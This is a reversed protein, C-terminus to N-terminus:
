TTPPRRSPRHRHRHKGDTTVGVDVQDLFDMLAGYDLTLPCQLVAVGAFAVLGIRDFQRHSIFSKTAQKAVTM